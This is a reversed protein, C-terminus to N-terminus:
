FFQRGNVKFLLFPSPSISYIYNSPAGLYEPEDEQDDDDELKVGWTPTTNDDPNHKKKSLTHKWKKARDKVKALVSKKSHQSHDEEYLGLSPTTPASWGADDNLLQQATPTNPTTRSEMQRQIKEMQAM